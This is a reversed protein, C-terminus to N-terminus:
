APYDAHRRIRWTLPNRRQIPRIHARDSFAGPLTGLLLSTGLRPKSTAFRRPKHGTPAIRRRTKTDAIYSIVSQNGHGIATICRSTGRTVHGTAAICSSADEAPPSAGPHTGAGRSRHRCHTRIRGPGRARHRRHLQIHGRHRSHAQTHGPKMHGIAAIRKFTNGTYAIYKFTHNFTSM